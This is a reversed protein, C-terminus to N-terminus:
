VYVIKRKNQMVDLEVINWSKWIEESKRALSINFDIKSKWVIVETKLKSNYDFIIKLVNQHTVSFLM